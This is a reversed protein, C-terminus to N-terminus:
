DLGDNKFVSLDVSPPESIIKQGMYYQRNSHDGPYLRQVTKSVVHM